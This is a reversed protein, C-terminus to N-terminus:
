HRRTTMDDQEFLSEYFEDGFAVLTKKSAKKEVFTDDMLAYESIQSVHTIPRFAVAARVEDDVKELDPLNAQPILVEPVGARYAAMAKERLGGIPLVRGTLTIEGTMALKPNVKMGSLASLLATFITVGASPGDKPTAGEPVHIHVDCNQHFDTPLQLTQAHFRLYSLAAEASEKMVDGLSGTLKLKGTGPLLLVEIPMIDGGVSTWALGNVVGVAPETNHMDEKYKRAGLWDHLQPPKLSLKFAEDAAVQQATKRCLAALRRELQRVGAERTYGAIVERLAADNLKLQASKLGHRTLQKKLLHKKAIHLKEQATYSPMEILEMRDLLPKPIAGVDNATTIFLVRSLDFPLELFHDRFAHNQESDMVELLASAPDGRMDSCLKDIEDLLIVPNNTGAQSIANIIRGPMAGVYTKRHGRIEAEDRIGGLSIRAFRRGMAEAISKAVSTKGVGPPGALCLIQGGINPALKRVALLQLVREKVERLGHHDRDLKRHASALDLKDRSQKHWPLGTATELYLHLLASEASHSHTRAFRQCDKVLKDEIDQPLNLALVKAHFADAQENVDENEGLEASIARRQERLYNDRQNQDMQHMVQVAIKEELQQLEHEKALTACLQHLRAALDIEELLAQKDEMELPLTDAIYDALRGSSQASLVTHPIDPPLHIHRACLEFMTKAQRLLAEEKRHQAAKVPLEPLPQVIATNHTDAPSIGCLAARCTGQVYARIGSDTSSKVVQRVTAIVGVDFLDDQGPEETVYDRQTVLFVEQNEQMAARFAAVCAPRAVEFHVRSEPFIVLGRLPVVPLERLNM